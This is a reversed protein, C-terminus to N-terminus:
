RCTAPLYKPDIVGASACTWSLSGANNVGTLEISENFIATHAGNGYTVSIVNNAVSVHQTYKGKILTKDVLGAEANDAPWSGRDMIYEAIATKLSATLVLGESIQARITYNQYASIAISALIGIIAVVIMLEILTFGQQEKRKDPERVNICMQKTEISPKQRRDIPAPQCRAFDPL